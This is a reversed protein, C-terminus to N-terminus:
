QGYGLSIEVLASNGSACVVSITDTGAIYDQTLIAGAPCADCNSVYFGGAGVQGASPNTTSAVASVVSIASNSGCIYATKGSAGANYLKYTVPQNGPLNTFTISSATSTATINCSQLAVFNDATHRQSLQSPRPPPANLTNAPPTAM